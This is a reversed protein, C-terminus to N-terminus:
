LNELENFDIEPEQKSPKLFDDTEAGNEALTLNTHYKYASHGWDKFVKNITNDANMFFAWSDGVLLVKIQDSETCQSQALQVGFLFILSTLLVKKM